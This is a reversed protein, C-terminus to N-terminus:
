YTLCSTFDDLLLIMLSDDETTRLFVAYVFWLWDTPSKADITDPRYHNESTSKILQRMGFFVYKIM